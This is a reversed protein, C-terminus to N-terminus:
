ANDEEKKRSKKKKREREREREEEVHEMRDTIEVIQKRMDM